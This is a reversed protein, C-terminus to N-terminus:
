VGNAVGSDVPRDTVGTGPPGHSIYGPLPVAWMMILGGRGGFGYARPRPGSPSRRRSRALRKAIEDWDVHSWAHVEAVFIKSTVAPDADALAQAASLSDADLILEAAHVAGPLHSQSEHVTSPRNM